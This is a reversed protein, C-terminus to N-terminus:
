LLVDHMYMYMYMQIIIYVCTSYMHVHIFMRLLNHIVREEWGSGRKWGGGGCEGLVASGEGEM